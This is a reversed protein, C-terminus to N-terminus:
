IFHFLIDIEESIVKDKSINRWGISWNPCIVGVMLANEKDSYYCMINKYISNINLNSTNKFDWVQFLYECVRGPLNCTAIKNLSSKLQVVKNKTNEFSNFYACIKNKLDDYGM